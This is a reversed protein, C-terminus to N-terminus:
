SSARKEEIRRRIGDERLADVLEGVDDMGTEFKEGLQEVTQTLRQINAGLPVLHERMLKLHSEAGVYLAVALAIAVCVPYGVREFVWVAVKVKRPIEVDDAVAYPVDAAAAAKTRVATEEEAVGRYIPAGFGLVLILAVLIKGRTARGTGKKAGDNKGTTQPRSAM